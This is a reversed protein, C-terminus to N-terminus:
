REDGSGGIVGREQRSKLKRLNKDAVVSLDLGLRYAVQSVYWLVDGLEGALAERAGVNLLGDHDRIVKKMKDAFEGSEGCLGLTMAYLGAPGHPYINTLGANEQYDNMDM